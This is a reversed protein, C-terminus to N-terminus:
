TTCELNTRGVLVGRGGLGGDREGAMNVNAADYREWPMRNGHGLKIMGILVTIMRPMIVTM